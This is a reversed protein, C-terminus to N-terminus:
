RQVDGRGNFIFKVLRKAGQYMFYNIGYLAWKFPNFKNM